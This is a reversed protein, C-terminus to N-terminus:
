INDKIVELSHNSTTPQGIEDDFLSEDFFFQHHNYTSIRRIIPRSKNYQKTKLLFKLSEPILFSGLASILSLTIGPMTIWFWNKSLYDFYLTMILFTFGDITWLITSVLAQRNTPIFEMMYVFAISIRATAIFGLFFYVIIM